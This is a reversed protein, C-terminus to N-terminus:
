QPPTGDPFGSGFVTVAAGVPGSTPYPASAVPLRHGLRVVRFMPGNGATGNVIWRQNGAQNQIDYKATEVFSRVIADLNTLTRHTGSSGVAAALDGLIGAASIGIIAVAVLIEILTDGPPRDTGSRHM